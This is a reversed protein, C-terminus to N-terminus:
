SWMGGAPQPLSGVVLGTRHESRQEFEIKVVAAGTLADAGDSRAVVLCMASAAAGLLVSRLRIPSAIM